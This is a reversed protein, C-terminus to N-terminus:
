EGGTNFVYVAGAVSRSNDSQDGNVGTSSSDESRSGVAILDGSIAVSTGFFDLRDPNSSKLYSEESWTSGSRTFVYAAGSGYTNDNMGDGNVGVADSDEGNAGVVLTDGSLGLSVGFGDTGINVDRFALTNSAKIFAQRAWTSSGDREFVYVAGANRSANNTEANPTNVGRENSDELKVAIALTDGDVKVVGGFVDAAEAVDGKIYAQQSWTAGSRTFVYVAGASVADNNFQEGDIGTSGSDEGPAGVAITDGSVSVSVGFSDRAGQDDTIGTNSQKLYAQETWTTGNRTFVYAAGSDLVDNNEGDGNVGRSGSDEYPAGVVITDGDIAVAVGFADGKDIGDDFPPTNSAKLYAQQTWTTGSRVFVYAAGPNFSSNDSQDGNAGRANSDEWRAGIVLTDGDIACSFGFNDRAETNSQKLYAQQTWGGNADRVFVYAAGSGNGSSDSQDGDIGTAGSDEGLATVVKTDGSLSICQGFGDLRDVTSAKVYAEQTTQAQVQSASLALLLCPFIFTQKKMNLKQKRM